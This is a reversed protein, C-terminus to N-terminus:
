IRLAFPVPPGSSPSVAAAFVRSPTALDFARIKLVQAVMPISATNAASLLADPSHDGGCCIHGSDPTSPEAPEHCGSGAPANFELHKVPAFGMTCSAQLLLAAVAALAAVRFTFRAMAHIAVRLKLAPTV